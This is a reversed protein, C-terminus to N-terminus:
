WYTTAVVDVAVPQYDVVKVRLVAQMNKNEWGRPATKLLDRM